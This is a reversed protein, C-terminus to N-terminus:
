FTDEDIYNLLIDNEATRYIFYLSNNEWFYNGFDSQLLDDIIRISQQSEPNYQWIGNVGYKSTYLMKDDVEIAYVEDDFTIQQMM